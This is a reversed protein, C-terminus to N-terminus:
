SPPPTTPENFLRRVEEYFEEGRKDKLAAKIKDCRLCPFTFPQGTNPYLQIDPPSKWQIGDSMLIPCECPTHGCVCCSLWGM